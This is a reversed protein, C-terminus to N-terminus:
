FKNKRNSNQAQLSELEKSLFQQSLTPKVYKKPHLRMKSIHDSCSINKATQASWVKGTFQSLKDIFDTWSETTDFRSNILEDKKSRNISTLSTSTFASIFKSQFSLRDTANTTCFLIRSICACFTKALNLFM